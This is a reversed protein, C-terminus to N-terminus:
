KGGSGNSSKWSGIADVLMTVGGFSMILCLNTRSQWVLTCLQRRPIWSVTNGHGVHRIDSSRYSCNAIRLVIPQHWIKLKKKYWEMVCGAPMAATYCILCEASSGILLKSENANSPETTCVQFDGATLYKSLASACITSFAELTLTLLIEIFRQVQDSFQLTEQIGGHEWNRIWMEYACNRVFETTSCEYWLKVIVGFALHQWVTGAHFRNRYDCSRVLDATWCCKDELTLFCSRFAGGLRWLMSYPRNKLNQRSNCCGFGRECSWFCFSVVRSLIFQSYSFALGMHRLSSLWLVVALTLLVSWVMRLRLSTKPRMHYWKVVARSKSQSFAIGPQYIIM